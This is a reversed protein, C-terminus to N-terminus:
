RSVASVAQSGASLAENVIGSSILAPSVDYKGSRVLATLQGVRASRDSQFTQIAQSLGSLEAQDGSGGIASSRSQGTSPNFAISQAGIAGSVNQQDIKM